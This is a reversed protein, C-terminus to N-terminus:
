KRMGRCVREVERPVDYAALERNYTEMFGMKTGLWIFGYMMYEMVIGMDGKNRSMRQSAEYIKAVRPRRLKVTGHLASALGNEDGADVLYHRLFLALTEADELAQCAGQGSSPQLAHAADGILIMTEHDSIWTPLEPTTYTPYIHEIAVNEKVYGLIAHIAPDAWWEHRALMEKSATERDFATEMDTSVIKTYPKPSASSFTSWWAALQESDEREASGSTNSLHTVNGIYGYGFFGNPGFTISMADNQFGTDKLVTGPVFGGLGTLGEYHPTIYDKRIPTRRLLWALWSQPYIDNHKAFITARVISRLGDAGILLDATDTAGDAFTLKIYEASPNDIKTIRKKVIADANVSLVRDKLVDWLVQRAIMVTDSGTAKDGGNASADVIKWGRATGIRWKAINNGTVQVTKLVNGTDDIRKLVSLGNKGIGIANGIVKPAFLPGDLKQGGPADYIKNHVDYAEYIVLSYKEPHLKVLHKHLFLYASLGAVGAGVIVIKM